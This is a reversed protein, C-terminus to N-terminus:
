ISSNYYLKMYSSINNDSFNRNKRLFCKLMSFSREVAASTPQCCQLKAYLSPALDERSVELIVRFDNAKLRKEIYSRINLPDKGFKDMIEELAAQADKLTSTSGGIKGIIWPIDSYYSNIETLQRAVDKENISNQAQKVIIGERTWSNVIEKVEPLNKAYYLAADIWSGWRTVVPTPPVGVADFHAARTRNKVVSSKISAILRDVEPYASKIRIACNHLLHAICTVHLLKPYMEKLLKGAKCMYAASDSILLNVKGREIGLEKVVDDLEHLITQHNPSAELITCRVLYSVSPNDLTGCLTHLFKKGNLDTEDMIFFLEKEGLKNKIELDEKSSLEQVKLRCTSESPLYQGLSEFLSRLSKNNVKELAIDSEAFAKVLRETFDKRVIPFFQQTAPKNSGGAIGNKHKATNLHQDVFFKKKHKVICCCVKCYLEDKPTAQFEAHERVIKKIKSAQSDKVKPM